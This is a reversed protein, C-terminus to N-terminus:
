FEKKFTQFPDERTTWPNLGCKWHLSASSMPEAGLLPVLIRCATYCPWFSIKFYENSHTIVTQM